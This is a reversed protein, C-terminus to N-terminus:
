ETLNENYTTCCFDVDNDTTTQKMQKMAIHQYGM